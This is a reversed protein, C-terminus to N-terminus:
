AATVVWPPGSVRGAGPGPWLPGIILADHEVAWALQMELAEHAAPDDLHQHPIPGFAAQLPSVALHGLFVAGEGVRIAVHGPSHGGTHVATVDATMNWRTPMAQVIGRECLQLLASAGDIGPNSRVHALELGTLEITANPFLPSWRGSEDVAAAMGIGDLHSLVVTDVNEVPLSAIDMAAVVAAQHTLAEPGSRLFADSAGCPDVVITRDGSEIVWIAQGVLVQGEPTAWKPTGWPVSSVQEATLGIIAADLPVDFYPVRTIRCDGVPHTFV